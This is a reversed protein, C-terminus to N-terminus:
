KTLATLFTTLASKQKAELAAGGGIDNPVTLRDNVVINDLNVGAKTSTTMKKLKEKGEKKIQLNALIMALDTINETGFQYNLSDLKLAQVSEPDEDAATDLENLEKIIGDAIRFVRQRKPIIDKNSALAQELKAQTLLSERYDEGTLEKAVATQPVDTNPGAKPISLQKTPKPM